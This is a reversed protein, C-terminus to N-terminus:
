VLHEEHKLMCCHTSNSIMFWMNLHVGGSQVKRSTVSLYAQSFTFAWYILYYAAQLFFDTHM